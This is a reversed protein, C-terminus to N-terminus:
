RPSLTGSRTARHDALRRAALFVLTQDHPATPEDVVDPMGVLQVQNQDARRVSTRAEHTDVQARRARHRAHEGEHGVVKGLERRRQRHSAGLRRVGVDNVIRGPRLVNERATFYTV